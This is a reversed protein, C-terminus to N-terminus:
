EDSALSSVLHFLDRDTDPLHHRLTKHVICMGLYQKM